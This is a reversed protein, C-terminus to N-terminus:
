SNENPKKMGHRTWVEAPVTKPDKYMTWKCKADKRDPYTPPEVVRVPYGWKEMPINEMLISCHACYYCVGKKNWAWDYEKETVRFNYPAEMRAPTGEVHDGRISRGGSGCPDFEIVVKEEDENFDMEGYRRPGCLHARMSEISNYILIEFSEEWNAEPSFFRYRYDFLDGIAYDRYAIEIKDEGFRNAIYVLIGYCYDVYKDHLKRWYERLHDTEQLLQQIPAKGHIGRILKSKYEHLKIWRAKPDLPEGNEGLLEFLDQSMGDVEGHIVDPQDHIFRIFDASWQVYIDYCIRAEEIFYNVLEVANEKRKEQIALCIKEYTSILQEQWNGKRINKNLRESFYLESSM